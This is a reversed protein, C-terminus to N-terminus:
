RESASKEQEIAVRHDDDGRQGAPRRDLASLRGARGYLILTDSPRILTDGHPVGIYTGDERRIGLVAIGEHRLDADALGRDALWDGAKVHLESIGFDGSIQLLGAVDRVELDTWRALARGILHHLLASVRDNRSLFLLALLAIVIIVVRLLADSNDDARSVSLIVSAAITIIGANGLLMLTMIVRRRVPHGVVREAEGTTYGVGTFASRAQFRAAERTMGTVTLVLTAVRTVLLSFTVAIIVSAIAIM